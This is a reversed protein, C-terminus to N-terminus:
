ELRMAMYDLTTTRHVNQLVLHDVAGVSVINEAANGVGSVVYFGDLVGHHQVGPTTQILTVPDLAYVDGYGRMIRQRVPNFGLTNLSASLETSLKFPNAGDADVTSYRHPGICIDAVGDGSAGRWIADPGLMYANHRNFGLGAGDNHPAFPFAAHNDSLSRWSTVETALSCTAGVFLPYPYATPFVYPLFFGAYAVQYVTSMNAVVIFRRGSAVFWYRMASADLWIKVGPAVNVHGSMSTASPNVGSLGYFTISRADTDVSDTRVMGVYIEDAGGAGPGRVVVQKGGDISWVVTWAEGAGVLTANTTLFAILDNWFDVSDTSTGTTYAM